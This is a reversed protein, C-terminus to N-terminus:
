YWKLPFDSLSSSVSEPALSTIDVLGTIGRPLALLERVWAEDQERVKLTGVKLADIVKSIKQASDLARDAEM